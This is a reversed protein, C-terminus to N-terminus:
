VSVKHKNVFSSTLTELNTELLEVKNFDWTNKLAEEWAFADQQSRTEPKNGWPWLLRFSSSPHIKEIERKHTKVLIFFIKWFDGWLHNCEMPWCLLQSPRFSNTLKHYAKVCTSEEIHGSVNSRSHFKPKILLLFFYVATPYTVLLIKWFLLSVTGIICM